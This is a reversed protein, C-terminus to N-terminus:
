NPKLGLVIRQVCKECKECPPEETCGVTKNIVQPYIQNLYHFLDMKPEIGAEPPNINIDFVTGLYSFYDDTVVKSSSMFIDQIGKRKAICSATNLLMTLQLPTRIHIKSWTGFMGNPSEALNQRLEADTFPTASSLGESFTKVKRSLDKHFKIESHNANFYDAIIKAALKARINNTQNSDIYLSEISDYVNSVIHFLYLSDKGGSNLILCKKIM